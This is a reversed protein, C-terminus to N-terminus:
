NAKEWRGAESQKWYTVEFGAATASKWRERAAAVAEDSNGDFMDVVRQFDGLFGPQGGDVLFLYGAKNPNEEETTLYVPQREPMGEDASGHPLFSGADYTWLVDNLHSVRETSGALVLANVGRELTRELLKPLAQELPMRQLHYFSVETM